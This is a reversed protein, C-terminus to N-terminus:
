EYKGQTLKPLKSKERPNQGNWTPQRIQQCVITWLIEPYEKKNKYHRKKM